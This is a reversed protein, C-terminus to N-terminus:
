LLFIAFGSSFCLNTWLSFKHLIYAFLIAFLIGGTAWRETKLGRKTKPTNAAFDQFAFVDEMTNEYRLQM